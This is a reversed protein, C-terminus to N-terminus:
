ANARTAESRTPAVLGLVAPNVEASMWILAGTILTALLVRKVNVPTTAWPTSAFPMPAV